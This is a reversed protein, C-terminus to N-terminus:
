KVNAEAIRLIYLLRQLCVSLLYGCGCIRPSFKLTATYCDRALLKAEAHMFSLCKTYVNVSLLTQSVKASSDCSVHHLFVNRLLSASLASLATAIVPFGCVARYVRVKRPVTDDKIGCNAM